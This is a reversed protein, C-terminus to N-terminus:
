RVNGYILTRHLFTLLRTAQYIALGAWITSLGYYASRLIVQAAVASILGTVAYNLVLWKIDRKALLCGELGVVSPHMCLGLSAWPIVEKMYKKVMDDNTFWHPQAVPVVLTISTAIAAIVLTMGIIKRTTRRASERVRHNMSEPPIFFFQPLYTQATTSCVDGLTFCFRSLSYMVQHAALHTPGLKTALLVLQNYTLQKMLLVFMFPGFAFFDRIQQRSPIRMVSRLSCMGRSVLTGVLSWAAALQCAVTAWAAGQIGWGLRVVMLWDLAANIFGALAVAKTPSMSDKSGLCAAQAAMLSLSCPLSFARIKVYEGCLQWLQTDPAFGLFATAALVHLMLGLVIGIALSCLQSTSVVERLQTLKDEGSESSKESMLTNSVLNTTGVSIFVMLGTIGDCIACAPGLAALQLSSVSGVAATDILSLLTPAIFIPTASITFKTLQSITPERIRFNNADKNIFDDEYTTTQGPIAADLAGTHRSGTTRPVCSKRSSRHFFPGSSRTREFPSVTTLAVTDPAAHIILLLYISTTSRM